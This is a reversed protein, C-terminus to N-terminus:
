FQAMAAAGATCAFPLIREISEIPAAHFRRGAAPTRGTFIADVSGELEAHRELGDHM